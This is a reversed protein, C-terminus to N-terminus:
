NICGCLDTTVTVNLKLKSFYGKGLTMTAAITSIIRLSIYVNSFMECFNYNTLGNLLEQPKLETTRM